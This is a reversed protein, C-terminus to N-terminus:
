QYQPLPELLALDVDIPIVVLEGGLEPEMLHPMSERPRILISDFSSIRLRPSGDGSLVAASAVAKAPLAFAAGIFTSLWAPSLMVPSGIVLAQYALRTWFAPGGNVILV